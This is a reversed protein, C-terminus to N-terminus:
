SPICRDPHLSASATDGAATGGGGGSPICPLKETGLTQHGGNIGRCPGGPGGGAPGCGGGGTLRALGASGGGGGTPPGAEAAEAACVVEAFLEAVPVLAAFSGTHAPWSAFVRVAEKDAM